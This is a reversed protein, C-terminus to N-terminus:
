VYAGDTGETWDPANVMEVEIEPYTSLVELLEPTVTEYDIEVTANAM